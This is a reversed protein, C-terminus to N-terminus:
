GKGDGENSEKSPAPAPPAPTESPRHADFAAALHSTTLGRKEYDTAMRNLPVPSVKTQYGPKRDDSM